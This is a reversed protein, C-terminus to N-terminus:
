LCFLDEENDINAEKKLNELVSDPMKMAMNNIIVNILVLTATHTYDIAIGKVPAFLVYDCRTALPNAPNDTLAVTVAGAESATEVSEYVERFIRQSSVAILLDDKGIESYKIKQSVGVGTFCKVPKGLRWLYWSLAKTVIESNYIATLYVTGANLIANVVKDLQEYDLMQEMFIKARKNILERYVAREEDTKKKLEPDAMILALTKQAGRSGNSWPSVIEVFSYGEGNIQASIAEKIYKKLQNINKPSTVAGRAVYSVNPLTAMIEPVKIPMGTVKCDRGAPSTTTKQGPMTTWSMQGGTMAFNNNLIVFTCINEGRYAANLTENLGIVYADGDGQYSISLLDPRAVKVGTAVSAARGHATQLM